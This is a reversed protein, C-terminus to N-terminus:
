RPARKWDGSQKWRFAGTDKDRLAYGQAIAERQVSDLASVSGILWGLIFILLAAFGLGVYILAPRSDKADPDPTSM